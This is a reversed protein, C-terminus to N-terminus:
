TLHEEEFLGMAMGEFGDGKFLLCNKDSASRCVKVDPIAAIPRLRWYEHLMGDVRLCAHGKYQLGKCHPCSEDRITNTDVDYDLRRIRLSKPEGDSGWEPYESGLSVRSNGCYPCLHYPDYFHNEGVNELDDATPLHFTKFEGSPVWLKNWCDTVKPLCREGNEVRNAIEARAMYKADTAYTLSGVGFPANLSWRVNEEEACFGRLIRERDVERRLDIIPAMALAAFAKLATRRSVNM